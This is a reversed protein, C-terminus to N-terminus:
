VLYLNNLPVISDFSTFWSKSGRRLPMKKEKEREKAASPMSGLAMHMDVLCQTRLSYGSGRSCVM